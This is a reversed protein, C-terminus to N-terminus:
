AIAPTGQRLTYLGAGMIIVAGLLMAADPLNGFFLYGWLIGWPLAAYEFLAARNAEALRYGQSLLFFGMAAIVGCAAMLGLDRASPLTWPLLLFRLSQHSGTPDAAGGVALATAGGAIFYVCAASIAMTGASETAGLRRTVLTSCAYALAGGIPLLMAAELAGVGPRLVILVGLFGVGIAAWMRPTVREGLVPIGLAAVFIPVIFYLAVVDAIPLRALALYYTTYAFYLFLGRGVHLGLRRFKVPRRDELLAFGYLVPLSVLSRLVVIQHVPYDDSLAKVIVDQISFVSVGLAVCLMGLLQRDM